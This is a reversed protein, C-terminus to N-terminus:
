QAIKGGYVEGYVIVKEAGFINKFNQLLTPQDFLAVFRQHNIGGAHFCLKDGSYSIQSSSGHIKELAFCEKFLLIEQEAYLNPIKLYGM